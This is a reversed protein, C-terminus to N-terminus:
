YRGPINERFYFQAGMDINLILRYYEDPTLELGGVDLPHIASPYARVAADVTPFRQPPNLRKIVDSNRAVGPDVYSRYDGTIMVVDRELEMGVGLLSVYSAPYGAGMRRGVQF